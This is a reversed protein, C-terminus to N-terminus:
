ARINEPVIKDGKNYLTLENIIVSAESKSIKDINPCYKKPDIGNKGCLVNFFQKQADTVGENENSEGNTPPLTKVVNANKNRFEDVINKSALEEAAVCKLLLGKRLCRAEARTSATASPHLMFLTDTNDESVDAVDGIVCQVNDKDIYVIQYLVTANNQSNHWVQVPKSDVIKGMLNRFVRRLGAVNPHNNIKEDEALLSMVYDSWGLEGFEPTKEKAM